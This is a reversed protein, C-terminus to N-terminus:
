VPIGLNDSQILLAFISYHFQKMVRTIGNAYDYSITFYWSSAPLIKFVYKQVQDTCVTDIEFPNNQFLSSIDTAICHSSLICYM